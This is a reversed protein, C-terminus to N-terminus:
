IPTGVEPRIGFPAVTSLITAVGKSLESCMTRFIRSASKEVDVAIVSAILVAKPSPVALASSPTEIAIEAGM